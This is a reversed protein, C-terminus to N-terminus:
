SIFERTEAFALGLAQVEALIPDYVAPDFPLRVGTQRIRGELILRAAIAVPLGVTRAMASDGGPVGFDVLTSRIRELRGDPRRVLFEHRLAIMDREGTRYALREVMRATLIDITGGRKIPVPEDAFLGLWALREMIEDGPALRLFTAAAHRPDEGDPRGTLELILRGFTWGTWDREEVGLLGLEGIKLMTRCWGPWRLTGRILTGAEPIGYTEAYTVSDRNPYGEFEGLGSVSFAVPDAFLREAPVTEVRGDRLFRASSRSALLVGRPSWSFKYGFPNDNAEPAPLGGCYSTFSEVRGGGAKVGRIIRLAEMHDIGPDLGLENLILVGAREAAPGLERMEPSLYSATLMDKGADIALRAVAPHLPSPVMSILLDAAAAEARVSREDQLDLALARGRPHGGVLRAARGPEVDSLTVRVGPLGLLYRVLPAAVLGAGIILVSAM